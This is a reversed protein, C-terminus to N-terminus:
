RERQPAADASADIAPGPTVPEPSWEATPRRRYFDFVHRLPSFTPYRYTLFPDMVCPAFGALAPLEEPRFPRYDANDNWGIILLGDARLARHLQRLARDADNRDDLGFGFVGNVIAADLTAPAIFEDIDALSGVIHDDSGFTAVEPDIDITRLHAPAFREPYDRTYSATGVFLLETFEGDGILRPFIVDELVARDILRERARLARWVSRARQQVIRPAGNSNPM